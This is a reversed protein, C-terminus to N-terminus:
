SCIGASAEDFQIALRGSGEQLITVNLAALNPVIWDASELESYSHTSAVALVRLGAAKAAAIGVPADDVVICTEPMAGNRAVALLYPEPAPKGNVVDDAAVLM